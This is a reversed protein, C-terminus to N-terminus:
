TQGWRALFLTPHGAPLIGGLFEFDKQNRTAVGYGNAVATSAILLDKLLKSKNRDTLRGYIFAALEGAHHDFPLIDSVQDFLEKTARLNREDLESLGRNKHAKMEFGALAEFVTTSTLAPLTKHYDTYGQLRKLLELKGYRWETFVNTDMVLRIDPPAIAFPM